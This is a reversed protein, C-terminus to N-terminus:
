EEGELKDKSSRIMNVTFFFFRMFYVIELVMIQISPLAFHFSHPLRLDCVTIKKCNRDIATYAM